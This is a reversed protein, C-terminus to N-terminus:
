EYKWIYGYATKHEGRAAASISNNKGGVFEAAEKISNFTRLYNGNPDYQHILKSRNSSNYTKKYPEIPNTDNSYKWIYGNAKRQRGNICGKIGTLSSTNVARACDSLTKYRNIFNGNLDYQAIWMGIDNHQLGGLYTKLREVYEDPNYVVFYKNNLSNAKNRKHLCESIRNAPGFGAKEGDLFSDFEGLVEESDISIIYYHGSHLFNYSKNAKQIEEETLNDGSYRFIWNHAYSKNKKCCDKISSVFNIHENNDECFETMSDWSGVFTGQLTYVDIPTGIGYYEGGETSNTLEYKNKSQEIAKIEWDIVQHINETKKLIIMKPLKGGEQLSKIWKTKKNIAKDEIHKKLRNKPNCTIGIYKPVQQNEPDVLAYLYFEKKM